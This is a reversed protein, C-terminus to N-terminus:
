HKSFGNFRGRDQEVFVGGDVACYTPCMGAGGPPGVAGRIGPEGQPGPAGDVGPSGHLGKMGSMNETEMAPKGSKGVPGRPGPLQLQATYQANFLNGGPLGPEGPIPPEVTPIEGPDGEIGPMGPLGPPGRVGRSGAIGPLGNLGRSGPIGPPGPTGPEGKLGKPGDEGQPCEKCLQSTHDSEFDVKEAVRSVTIAPRIRIMGRQDESAPVQPNTREDVLEGDGTMDSDQNPIKEDQDMSPLVSPAASTTTPPKLSLIDLRASAPM